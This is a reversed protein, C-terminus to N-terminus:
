LDYAGYVKRMPLLDPELFALKWWKDFCDQSNAIKYAEKLRRKAKPINGLVCEYRALDYRVRIEDPFRRVVPLLSALAEKTRNLGHLANSRQLWGLLREPDQKAIASAIDLCAEWREAKAHIECRLELVDPHARGAPSILELEQSAEIPNHLEVWGKAVNLHMVDRPDLPDM